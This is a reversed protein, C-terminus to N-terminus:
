RCVAPVDRPILLKEAMIPLWDADSHKYGLLHGWEHVLIACYRARDRRLRDFGRRKAHIWCSAGPFVWADDGAHGRGEVLLVRPRSPRACAPARHWYREARQLQRHTTNHSAHAPTALNLWCAIVLAAFVVRARTM